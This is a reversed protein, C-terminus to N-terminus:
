KKELAEVRKLLNNAVFAKKLANLQRQIEALQKEHCKM